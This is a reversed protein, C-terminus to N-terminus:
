GIRLGEAMFCAPRYILFFLEECFMPGGGNRLQRFHNFGLFHYKKFCMEPM